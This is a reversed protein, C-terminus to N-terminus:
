REREKAMKERKANKRKDRWKWKKPKSGKRYAPANWNKM